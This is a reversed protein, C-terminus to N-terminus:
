LDLNIHLSHLFYINRLKESIEITRVQQTWQMLPSIHYRLLYSHLGLFTSQIRGLVLVQTPSLLVCGTDSRKNGRDIIIYKKRRKLQCILYHDLNVWAFINDDANCRLNQNRYWLNSHWLRRDRRWIWEPCNVLRMCIM